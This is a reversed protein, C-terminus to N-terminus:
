RIPTAMLLHESDAGVNAPPKGIPLRVVFESGGGPGNSHAAVTGGHLEILDKVLKLGIGLGGQSRSLAAGCQTFMEFVRPLMEPAIGIGTDKVRLVVEMDGREVAVWIRGAEETYKAANNLLNVIVQTLRTPDAHLYIPESPVALILTHRRSDILPRSSEVAQAVIKALAVPEKRLNIKGRRLRTIDLLDEVLRLAQRAQRDIVEGAWRLNPDASGLRGVVQAATRIPALPNRLEHALMALFQNKQEDAEVLEEARHLLETERTRRATADHFVLVAGVIQGHENRIPAASDDIPLETGNKTLLAAREPLRVVAGSSLAQQVPSDLPQRTQDDILPFVRQFNEGAADDQKWGTLCQAAANMFIIRGDADAAIVADGISTLTVRFQERQNFLEEAHQEIRDQARRVMECLQSIVSGLLVFLTMGIWDAPRTLAFLYPPEFALVATALAALVTTLLGPGLGGYWACVVVAPWLLLFPM